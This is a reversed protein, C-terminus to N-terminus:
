WTWLSCSLKGANCRSSRSPPWAADHAPYLALSSGVTVGIITILAIGPAVPPLGTVNALHPHVTILTFSHPPRRDAHSDQSVPHPIIAREGVMHPAGTEILRKGAGVVEVGETARKNLSKM